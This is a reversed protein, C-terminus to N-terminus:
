RARSRSRATENMEEEGGKKMEKKGTEHGPKRWQQHGYRRRMWERLWSRGQEQPCGVGGRGSYCHEKTMLMKTERKNRRRCQGDAQLDAM